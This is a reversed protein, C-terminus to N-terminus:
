LIQVAAVQIFFQNSCPRFVKGPQGHYKKDSQNNRGPNFGSQFRGVGVSKLSMKGSDSEFQLEWFGHCNSGECVVLTDNFAGLGTASVSGKCVVWNWTCRERGEGRKGDWCEMM